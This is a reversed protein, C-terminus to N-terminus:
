HFTRPDTDEIRLYFQGGVKPLYGIAFLASQGTGIHLFFGNAVACTRVKIQSKNM